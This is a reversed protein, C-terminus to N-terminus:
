RWDRLCSSRADQAHEVQEGDVFTLKVHEGVAASSVSSAASLTVAAAAATSPRMGVAVGKAPLARSGPLGLKTTFSGAAHQSAPVAALHQQQPVDKDMQALQQELREV